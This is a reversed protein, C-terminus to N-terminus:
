FAWRTGILFERPAGPNVWTYPTGNIPDGPYVSSGYCLASVSRSYYREDFLNNIKFYLEKEKWVYSTIFNWVTYAPIWYGAKGTGDLTAQSSKEYDSPHQKGTFAGNLGIKLGDYPEGLRKLPCVTGGMTFRNAPVLGLARGEAFSTTGGNSKVYATTWTYSGYLKIEQIPTMDVRQELGYRRTKAINLNQQTLSDYSIENNIDILFYSLKYAAWDKYRLRTGAEYSNSSEPQLGTQSYGAYPTLQDITPVRFGQSYNAFVDAWKFPKGTVGTSVTSKNWRDSISQANNGVAWFPPIFQTKNSNTDLWYFDHRMGFYPIIKDCINLTERWFVGVNHSRANNDVEPPLGGEIHGDPAAWQQSVQNSRRLEMGFLSENGIKWWQDNYKMQWTLDTDRAKSNLASTMPDYGYYPDTMTGSTSIGEKKNFRESAMISAELRDDWFKKDAGLQVVTNNFKWGDLPKNCRTIDGDNFEQLTIEGPLGLADQIHKVNVYFRGQDDPLEYATKIDFSTLRVTSNNRFGKTDDREGNFYYTFKGGLPTVKDQISGSVGQNFRLGHFSTWELGGFLHIPKSSPQGTTVNVVGAFAGSGYVSSASGREIQLSDVDRMPILPLKASNNDVDNVRVGDVLFVVTSPDSFGRLSFTSDAGNGVSDYLIVGEADTVSEQFTAPHTLALDKPSKYTVNSAMDNINVKTNPLRSAIVNVTLSDTPSLQDPNQKAIDIKPPQVTAKQAQGTQQSSINSPSKDEKKRNLFPWNWGLNLLCVILFLFSIKRLCESRTNGSM